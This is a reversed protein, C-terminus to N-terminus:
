TVSLYGPSKSVLKAIPGALSAMDMKCEGYVSKWFYRREHRCKMAVGHAQHRQKHNRKIVNNSFFITVPENPLRLSLIESSLFAM